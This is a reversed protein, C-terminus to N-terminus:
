QLTVRFSAISTYWVTLNAVANMGGLNWDQLIENPKRMLLQPSSTLVPVSMKKSVGLDEFLM